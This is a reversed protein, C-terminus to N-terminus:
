HLLNFEYRLGGSVSEFDCSFLHISFHDFLRAKVGLNFGYYEYEAMFSLDKCFSPTYNIGCFFGKYVSKNSLLYGGATLGFKHGNKEFHKTGVAYFSSFFRNNKTESFPNLQSTTLLDNSGLVIAPFYKGEKLPRIRFSVSRDQKWDGGDLEDRMLTCRYGLELFPLFTINLFYNGTNIDWEEPMIEKPLYNFGAMFVGDEQMDASPTNLLGATGTSHQAYVAPISTVLLIIGLFTIYIRTKLDKILALVDGMAM